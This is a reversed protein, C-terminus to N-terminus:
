DGPPTAYDWCVELYEEDLGGLRFIIVEEINPNDRAIMLDKELELPDYVNDFRGVGKAILGLGVARAETKRLKKRAGPLISSYCLPTNIVNDFKLGLWSNLRPAYPSEAGYMTFSRPKRVFRGIKDKQENFHQLQTILLRLRKYPLETDWLLTEGEYEKVEDMLRALADPPAFPSPYYGEDHLLTPWWAAEADANYAALEKKHQLFIEHSHAAMFITTDFPILAAKSLTDDSPFEEFFSIEM